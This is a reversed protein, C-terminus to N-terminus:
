LGSNNFTNFINHIAEIKGNKLELLFNKKIYSSMAEGVGAEIHITEGSKPHQFYLTHAHLLINEINDKKSKFGYLNDGIIFRQLTSLHVRIQHTRGTFLKAVILESKEDKSLLYKKFLTKAYKGNETIGMKLRNKDNRGINAEVILDNKLPKDIIALYYRGMKRESLQQSLNAHTNNDKAIVMAGTTGKDLRHVIGHREEGSITSLSVGRNKLWDVLTAEKVSPASHVVLHPPKNVVLLYDDEYLIEVDFDIEYESQKKQPEPFNIEIKDGNKLKIGNKFAINDNILVSQSKILQEVQNRSVELIESLFKDVREEQGDESQFIFDKRM